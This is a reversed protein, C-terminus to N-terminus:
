VIKYKQLEVRYKPKINLKELEKLKDKKYKEVLKQYEEVNKDVIIREEKKEDQILKEKEKKENMQKLLEQGNISYQIKKLEEKRRENEDEIIQRKKIEEFEDHEEKIKKEKQKIKELVQTEYGEILKKRDNELKILKIKEKENQKKEFEENIRKDNLEKLIEKKELIMEQKEKNKLIEQEKLLKLKKQIKLEEDKKENQEKNFKMVRFDEEKDRIKRKLRELNMYNLFEDNTKSLMMKKIKKQEIERLEEDEYAKIQMKMLEADKLVKEREILRIYEKEKIQDIISKVGEKNKEKIILKKDENYKLEKLREIEIMKDMNEEKKRYITDMKENHEIQRDRVNFVKARKVIVDIDRCAQNNNTRHSFIPSFQINFQNYLTPSLPQHFSSLTKNIQKLKQLHAKAKQLRNNRQNELILQNKKIEYDNVTNPNIYENNLKNANRKIREYDENSLISVNSKSRPLRPYLRNFFQYSQIYYILFIIKKLESVM